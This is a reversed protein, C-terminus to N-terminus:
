NLSFNIVKNGVWENYDAENLEIINNIVLDIFIIGQGDKYSKIIEESDVDRNIYRGDNKIIGVSTTAQCGKKVNTAIFFVIFYRKM